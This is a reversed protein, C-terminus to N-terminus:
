AKMSRIVRMIERKTEEPLERSLWRSFTYRTVGCTEAVQYYLLGKRDIAERIEKNCTGTRRKGM